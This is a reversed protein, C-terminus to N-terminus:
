AKRAGLVRGGDIIYNAGTIYDGDSSALFRVMHATEAGLDGSRKLYTGRETDEEYSKLQGPSICNVTINHKGAEMALAKSFSIVAGKSASYIAMKAIGAVGAISAINIIKGSQREEMHPLVARCCRFTGHVNINFMSLWEDEQLNKFENSLRFFGANNVLIDIQGLASLVERFGAEVEERQTIDVKVAIATGGAKIIEESTQRAKDLNIDMIAIKAGVGALELAIKRGIGDAGGTVVAVKDKLM